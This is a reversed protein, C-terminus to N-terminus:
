DHKSEKRREREEVCGSERTADIKLKEPCRSVPCNYKNMQQQGKLEAPSKTISLRFISALGANTKHDCDDM